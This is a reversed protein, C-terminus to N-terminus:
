NRREDRLLFGRIIRIDRISIGPLACTGRTSKSTARFRGKEQMLNQPFLEAFDPSAARAFDATSTKVTKFKAFDKFRFVKQLKQESIEFFFLPSAARAAERQDHISPTSVPGRRAAAAGV